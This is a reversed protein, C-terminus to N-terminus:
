WPLEYRRDPMDQRDITLSLREGTSPHYLGVYIAYDGGAPAQQGAPLTLRVRQRALAGAPWTPLPGDHQAALQGASDVLHVFFQAAPPTTVAGWLLDIQWGAEAAQMEYGVLQVAADFVVPQDPTTVEVPLAADIATAPLTISGLSQGEGGSLALEVQYDGPLLGAPPFLTLTQRLAQRDLWAPVADSAMVMGEDTAWVEGSADKIWVTM